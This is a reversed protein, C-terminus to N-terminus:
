PAETAPTVLGGDEDSAGDICSDKVVIVLPSPFRTMTGAFISWLGTVDTTLPNMVTTMGDLMAWSGRVDTM